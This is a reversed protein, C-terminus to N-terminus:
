KIGETWDEEEKPPVLVVGYGALYKLLLTADATTIRGDGDADAGEYPCAATGSLYKLIATVDATTVSGDGTADGTAAFSPLCLVSFLLSISLVLACARALLRRM